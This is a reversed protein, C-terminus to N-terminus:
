IHILSLGPVDDFFVSFANRRGYANYLSLVFDGSLWKKPNEFGFTLSLDLRHYDPVRNGNRRDYYAINGGSFYDFKAAPYTVPRGTSYTFVASAKAREGLKYDAIISLNHPKDYNANYWAGDNITEEPFSGIVRRKSRSYTYSVWGTLDGKKKEIYAEFGYAEGRGNLLDAELTNNLLLTAGDKYDIINRIDKYFVEVSAEIANDNFNKFIGGSYQIVEQPKVFPDSLKWVDTPAITTTNSILHIYQYMRNYGAKISTKDDILIRLSARPEFGSYKQITEGDGYEKFEAVTEESIPLLPEFIPIAHPGLYRFENYRIGYSLGIYRGIEFNHQLYIGTENGKEIDLAVPDVPFEPDTGTLNGPQIEVLKTQAGIAIDHNEKVFYKM